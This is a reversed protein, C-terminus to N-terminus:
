CIKCYINRIGPERNFSPLTLSWCTLFWILCSHMVSDSKHDRHRTAGPPSLEEYFMNEIKIIKSNKCNLFPLNLYCKIFLVPKPCRVHWENQSCRYFWQGTLNWNNTRLGQRIYLLGRTNTIHYSGKVGERQLCCMWPFPWADWKAASSGSLCGSLRGAPDPERGATMPDERVPFGAGPKVCCCTCARWSVPLVLVQAEGSCVFDDGTCRSHGFGGAARRTM